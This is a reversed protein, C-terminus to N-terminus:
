VLDYEYECAGVGPENSSCTNGFSDFKNNITEALTSFKQIITRVGAATIWNACKQGSERPSPPLTTSKLKQLLTTTWLCNSNNNPPPPFSRTVWSSSPISQWVHQGTPVLPTPSPFIGGKKRRFHQNGFVVLPKNENQRKRPLLCIHPLYSLLLTEGPLLNHKISPM